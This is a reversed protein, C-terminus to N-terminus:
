EIGDHTLYKTLRWLNPPGPTYVLEDLCSRAIHIGMGGEPLSELEPPPVSEFDFSEGTDEIVVLLSNKGPTIEIKVEGPGASKGRYSHISINNFIESFASVFEADFSRRLDILSADSLKGHGDDVGILHAAATLTRIAVDRFQLSAPMTIVITSSGAV